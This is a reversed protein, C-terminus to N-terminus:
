IRFLQLYNALVLDGWFFAILGAIALYPGFPMPKAHDRGSVLIAGLGIVAGVLSSLIVILPLYAWGMWAGLAALLKFDGYGMGEKGTVLKFLWYVSWLSLYGAAAGIVADALPAYVANLNILLGLWMLPLTISDPLLQHDIDIMTLSVLCWVLVMGFFGAWTPGYIYVPLLTLLGCVLEVAPYRAAITGRCNACKGKLLLYSIVPINHWPRIAAQCHPCSSGPHVLNFKTAEPASLKLAPQEQRVLEFCEERWNHMMMKPLRFIVVNLFSGVILGLIFVGAYFVAPAQAYIEALPLM